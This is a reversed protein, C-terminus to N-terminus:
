ARESLPKYKMHTDGREVGCNHVRIGERMKESDHQTNRACDSEEDPDGTGRLVRRDTADGLRHYAFGRVLSSAFTEGKRARM